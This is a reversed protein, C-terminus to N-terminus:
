KHGDEQILTGVDQVEDGDGDSRARKASRFNNPWILEMHVM